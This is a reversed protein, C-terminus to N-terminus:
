PAQDRILAKADREDLQPLIAANRTQLKRLRANMDGTRASAAISPRSGRPNLTLRRVSRGISQDSCHRAMPGCSGISACASALQDVSSRGVRLM